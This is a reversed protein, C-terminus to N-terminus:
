SLGTSLALVFQGAYYLPLGVARNAFQEAVFRHRAVTVDSIYFLVAGVIVMIRLEMPHAPQAVVGCAMSVMVTIVIVYALVPGLMKGLHPRLWLFVVTSLAISAAVGPLAMVGPMGLTAFAAIYAVHGLLFSILGARFAWPPTLALLVDGIVCLALGAIMITAYLPDPHPELLAVLVFMGSLPAKTCITATVNKRKSAVLLGALLVASIALIAWTAPDLEM